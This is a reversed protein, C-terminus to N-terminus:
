KALAYLIGIIFVFPALAWATQAAWALIKVAIILGGVVFLTGLLFSFM